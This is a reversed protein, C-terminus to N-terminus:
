AAGGKDAVDNWYGEDFGDMLERYEEGAQVWGKIGGELALVQMDADEAVNRVHELFWAACTPGRGGPKCSNCTFVVWEMGAKYALEYLM